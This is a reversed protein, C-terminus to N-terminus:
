KEFLWHARGVSHIYIDRRLPFFFLYVPGALMNALPTSERVLDGQHGKLAQTVAGLMWLVYLLTFPERLHGDAWESGQCSVSDASLYFPHGRGGPRRASSHGRGM